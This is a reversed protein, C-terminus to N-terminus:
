LFATACAQALIFSTAETSPTTARIPPLQGSSTGPLREVRHTLGYRLHDGEADATVLALIGLLPPCTPLGNM